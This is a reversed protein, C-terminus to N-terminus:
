RVSETAQLMWGSGASFGIHKYYDIAAPAAFLLVTARGGEAQTRRILEKGIGQRQWEVRVALDSLYTCFAFDSLSRAIGVLREGDWATVILNARQLMARMRELDDIPRRSGLTSARYVDVVENVDLDGAVRYLIMCVERGDRGIM